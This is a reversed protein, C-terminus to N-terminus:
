ILDEQKTAASYYREVRDTFNQLMGPRILRIAEIAINELERMKQETMSLGPAPAIHLLQDTRERLMKKM